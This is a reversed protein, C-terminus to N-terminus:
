RSMDKGIPCVEGGVDTKLLTRNTDRIWILTIQTLLRYCVKLTLNNIKQVTTEFHWLVSNGM